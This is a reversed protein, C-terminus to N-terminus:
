AVREKKRRDATVSTLWSLCAEPNNRYDRRLDAWIQEHLDDNTNGEPECERCAEWAVSCGSDTDMLFYDSLWFLAAATRAEASITVDDLTCHRTRENYMSM